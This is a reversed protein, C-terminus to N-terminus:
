VRTGFRINQIWVRGMERGVRIKREGSHETVVLFFVGTSLESCCKWHFIANECREGKKRWVGSIIVSGVIGVIEIGEEIM